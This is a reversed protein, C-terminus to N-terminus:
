LRANTDDARTRRPKFSLLSRTRVTVPLYSNLIPPLIPHRHLLSRRAYFFFYQVAPIVSLERCVPPSTTKLRRSSIRFSEEDRRKYAIELVTNAHLVINKRLVISIQLGSIRCTFRRKYFSVFCTPVTSRQTDPLLFSILDRLPLKKCKSSSGPRTGDAVGFSVTMSARLSGNNGQLTKM